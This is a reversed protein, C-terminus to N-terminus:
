PDRAHGRRHRRGRNRCYQAHANRWNRGRWCGGAGCEPPGGSRELVALRQDSRDIVKEEGIIAHIAAKAALIDGPVKVVVRGIRGCPRLRDGAHRAIFDNLHRMFERQVRFLGIATRHHDDARPHVVPEMAVHIIAADDIHQHHAATYTLRAAAPRMIDALFLQPRLGAPRRQGEPQVPAARGALLVAGGEKVRVGILPAVLRQVRLFDQRRDRGGPRPIARHDIVVHAGLAHAPKGGRRLKFLVRQGDPAFGGFFTEVRPIVDRLSQDRALQFEGAVVRVIWFVPRAVHEDPAGIQEARRALAM